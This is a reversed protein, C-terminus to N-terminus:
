ERQSVEVTVTVDVEDDDDRILEAVSVDVRELCDVPRDIAKREAPRLM